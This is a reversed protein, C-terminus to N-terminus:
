VGLLVNVEREIAAAADKPSTKQDILDNRYKSVVANMEDWPKVLPQQRSEKAADLWRQRTVNTKAGKAQVFTTEAVPKFGPVSRGGSEEVVRTGETGAYAVFSWSADKVKSGSWITYCDTYWRHARPKPGIPRLVIDAQFDLTDWQALIFPGANGLLGQRGTTWMNVGDPRDPGTRRPQVRQVHTLDAWFQLAQAGGATQNVVCKKGSPDLFEAGFDWWLPWTESYEVGWTALADNEYKAVRKVMDIFEAHTWTKDFDPKLTVGVQQFLNKNIGLLGVGWGQTVGYMKGDVTQEILAQPFFDDKKLKDREFMMTLDSLGGAGQFPIIRRTTTWIVDPAAGGAFATILKTGYEQEPATSNTAEIKHSPNAKGYAIAATEIKQWDSIGVNCWYSITAPAKTSANPAVTPAVTAASAATPAPAKTPEPAAPARTPASASKPAEEGCAALVLVSAGASVLRRRSMVSKM